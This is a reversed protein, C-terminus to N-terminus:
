SGRRRGVKNDCKDDNWAVNQTWVAGCNEIGEGNPEGPYWPQFASEALRDTADSLASFVGEEPLDWWGSWFSM